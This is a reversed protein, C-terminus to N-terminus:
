PQRTQWEAVKACELSRALRVPRGGFYGKRARVDFRGAPQAPRRADHWGSPQSATPSYRLRLENPVRRAGPHVLAGLDADRQVVTLAGGTTDALAQLMRENAPRQPVRITGDTLAMVFVTMDSRAAVDILEPEDLFSGGDQGKTLVIAMRRYDPNADRVLSVAVADFSASAAAM